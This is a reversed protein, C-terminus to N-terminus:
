DALPLWLALCESLYCVAELSRACTVCELSLVLKFMIECYHQISLWGCEVICHMTIIWYTPLLEKILM